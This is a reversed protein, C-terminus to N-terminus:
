QLIMAPWVVSTCINVLFFYRARLVGGRKCRLSVIKKWDGAAVDAKTLYTLNMKKDIKSIIKRRCNEVQLKGV